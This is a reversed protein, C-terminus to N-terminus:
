WARVPPLPQGAKPPATFTSNLALLGGWKTPMKASGVNGNEKDILAYGRDGLLGHETVVSEALQEPGMSKVAYRLITQISGATDAQDPM